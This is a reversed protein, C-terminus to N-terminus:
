EAGAMAAQLAAALQARTFPKPLVTAPGLPGLREAMHNEAYGSFFVVRVDPDLRRLLQLTEVGSLRPMTLDLVIADITGPRMRYMEVGHEGDEATLVDFGMTSLMRATATRVAEEDDIVLITGRGPETAPEGSAPAWAQAGAAPLLVDFRSGKGPESSIRMAGGHGRVIGLVAALGLGRGTSKTTFFPDFIRSRVQEDMGKGTDAVSLRVYRGAPLREAGVLDGGGDEGVVEEALSVVVDGGSDGIAEAGNLVLNMLIQHIQSSDGQVTPLFAPEEVRLAVKKPISTAMLRGIERVRQRLDLPRIEFRGKGSYALMQRTLDAARQAAMVIDDIAERADHKAPLRALAVSANGQIVTLLNNFDHAIGGALVGLSELKQTQLMKDQIRAREEQALLRKTVDIGVGITMGDKAAHFWMEYTAGTPRKLLATFTEGALARRWLAATAVDDGVLDFIDLGILRAPDDGRRRVEAGAVFLVRGRADVSIVFLPVNELVTQLREEAVRTREAQADLARRTKVTATVDVGIIVVGDIVGKDDTAPHVLLDFWFREGTGAQEVEVESLRATDGTRFVREALARFQLAQATQVGFLDNVKVQPSMKRYLENMWAYRLEPGHLLVVTAPAKDLAALIRRDM